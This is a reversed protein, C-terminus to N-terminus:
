LIKVVEQEKVNPVKFSAVGRELIVWIMFKVVTKLIPYAHGPLRRLVNFM